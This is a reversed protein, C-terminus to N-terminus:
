ENEKGGESEIRKGLRKPKSTTNEEQKNLLSNIKEEINQLKDFFLAKMSQYEIAQQFIFQLCLGYDGVFEANALSIFDRKTNPPVRNISLSIESLRKTIENIKNIKEM